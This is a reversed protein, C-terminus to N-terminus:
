PSGLLVRMRRVAAPLPEVIKVSFRPQLARAAVALPGGGIVVAEAGGRKVAADVASAIADELVCGDRMLELPDGTTLHTGTFQETLGLDGVRRAIAAALGPTTTAVAFRRGDAAAERLSAEGIGVVPGAFIQSAQGFGPDGFAAVIVGDFRESGTVLQTCIRGVASAGAALGAEDVIMAPAGEATFGAIRLACSGRGAEAQAIEVMRDTTATSSNPNVLAISLPSDLSM